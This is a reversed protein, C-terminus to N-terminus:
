GPGSARWRRARRTRRRRRRARPSPLCSASSCTPGSGGTRRTSRTRRRPKTEPDHGIVRDGQESRALIEKLMPASLEDPPLDDPVNARTGDEGIQVYPGYRGVRVALPRGQEDVGLPISSIARPDIEEGGSAIRKKLGLSLVSEDNAAKKNGFYFATLWPEAKAEGSAIRDLDGEMTATFDYDVLEGFHRELLNIVAFATFTPVLATGKKWV